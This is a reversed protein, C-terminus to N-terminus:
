LSRHVNGKGCPNKVLNRGFPNEIAIRRYFHRPIHGDPSRLKPIVCGRRIAKLKWLSNDDIISQWQKCVLRCKTILDNDSVRSLIEMLLEPCLSPVDNRSNSITSVNGM